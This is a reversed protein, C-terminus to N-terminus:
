SPRPNRRTRRGRHASPSTCTDSSVNSRPLCQPGGPRRAPATLLDLYVDQRDITVALADTESMFRKRRIRPARDLLLVVDPLQHFRGDGVTGLETRERTQVVPEFAQDVDRLQGVVVDFVRALRDPRTLPHRHLDDGDLGVSWRIPSLMRRTGGCRRVIRPAPAPVPLPAQPPWAAAPRARASPRPAPHARRRRLRLRALGGDVSGSGPSGTGDSASGDSTSDAASTRLRLHVRCGHRVAGFGFRLRNRRGRPPHIAPVPARSAKAPPAPRPSPSSGAAVSGYDGAARRPVALGLPMRSSCDGARPSPATHTFAPPSM